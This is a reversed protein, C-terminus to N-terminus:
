FITLRSLAFPGFLINQVLIQKVCDHFGSGTGVPTGLESRRNGPTKLFSWSSTYAGLDSVSLIPFVQAPNRVSVLLSVAVRENMHM